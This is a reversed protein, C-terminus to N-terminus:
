GSSRRLLVDMEDALQRQHLQAGIRALLYMTNLPKTVFESVGLTMAAIRTETRRSATLLIVPITRMRDDERLAECVRLGDLDPMMVDLVIVDVLERRAIALAAHGGGATRVRYGNRSLLRDLIFLADPDDDVALITPLRPNV